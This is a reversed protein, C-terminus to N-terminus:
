PSEDLERINKHKIHNKDARGGEGDSSEFDHEVLVLVVSSLFDMSLIEAFGQKINAALISIVLCRSKNRSLRLMM